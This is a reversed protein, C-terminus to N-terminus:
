LSPDAIEERQHRVLRQTAAFPTETWRHHEELAATWQSPPPGSPYRQEMDLPDHFRRNSTGKCALHNYVFSCRLPSPEPPLHVLPSPTQRRHVDDCLRHYGFVVCPVRPRGNGDTTYPTTDATIAPPTARQLCRSSVATRM